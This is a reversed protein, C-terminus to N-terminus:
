EYRLAHIPDVRAARQAPIYCALVAVLTLLLPLSSFLAADTVSVEFLLTEMLRTLAFSAAIGSAIGAIALGMGRRFVLSLVDRYTAGLAMRVGIEHTRESVAYSVVGYIGILALSIAVFAFVALLMTSFRARSVSKALLGEMTIVDGIPQQDDLARIVGRAAPAVSSPDTSTRIVLKMFSFAQEAHPWYAMPKVETALSMHKNDAVIGIIETPVNEDKM